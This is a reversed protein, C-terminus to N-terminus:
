EYNNCKLIKPQLPVHFEKIHNGLIIGLNIKTLFLLLCLGTSDTSVLIVAISNIVFNM